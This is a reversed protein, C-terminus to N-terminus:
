KPFVLPLFVFANVEVGENLLHKDAASWDVRFCLPCVYICLGCCISRHLTRRGSSFDRRPDSLEMLLM